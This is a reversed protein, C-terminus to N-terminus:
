AAPPTFGSVGIAGWGFEQLHADIDDIKPIRDMHMGTKTIGDVYAPVAHRSFFDRARRMIYRWTAHEVPTYRDYRQPVVYRKLYSPLTDQTRM